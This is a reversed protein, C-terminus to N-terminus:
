YSVSLNSITLTKVSPRGPYRGAWRTPASAHTQTHTSPSCSYSCPVLILFLLLAQRLTREPYLGVVERAPGQWGRTKVVEM